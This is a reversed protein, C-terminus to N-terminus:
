RCMYTCQVHLFVVVVIRLPTNIFMRCCDAWSIGTHSPLGPSVYTYLDKHLAISFKLRIMHLGTGKHPHTGASSLYLALGPEWTLLLQMSNLLTNTCVRLMYVHEYTYIHTYIHTHTYAYVYCHSHILYMYTHTYVTYHYLKVAVQCRCAHSTNFSTSTSLLYIGFGHPHGECNM